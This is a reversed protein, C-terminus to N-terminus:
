FGKLERASASMWGTASRCKLIPPPLDSPALAEDRGVGLSGVVM